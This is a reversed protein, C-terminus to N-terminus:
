YKSFPDIYERKLDAKQSAIEVENLDQLAPVLHLAIARLLILNNHSYEKKNLKDALVIFGLVKKQINIPAIIISHGLYSIHKFSSPYDDRNFIITEPSETLRSLLPDNKVKIIHGHKIDNYGIVKEVKARGTLDSYTLFMAKQSPIVKLIVEMAYDTIHSLSEYTGLIRGISFLTVLKNNAHTLRNHVEIAVNKIMLAAAAPDKKQITQWSMSNLELTRLLPSVVEASYHHKADAEVLVLEGYYDDETFFAIDERGNISAKLVVIGETIISLKKRLTGEAMVRDGDQYKNEILFSGVLAIQKKSLGNFLSVKSLDFSAM